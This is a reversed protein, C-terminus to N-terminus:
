QNQICAAQLYKKGDPMTTWQAMGNYKKGTTTALYTATWNTVTVTVPNGNPDTQTVSTASKNFKFPGVNVYSSNDCHDGIYLLKGTNGDAVTELCKGDRPRFRLNADQDGQVMNDSSVYLKLQSEQVSVSGDYSKYTEACDLKGGSSSEIASKADTQCVCKYDAALAPGAICTGAFALALAKRM